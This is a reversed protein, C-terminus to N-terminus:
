DNDLIGVINQRILQKARRLRSKITEQNLGTIKQIEWIKLEEFYYLMIIVKYKEPLSLIQKLLINHEEKKILINEISGYSQSLEDKILNDIPIGISNKRIKLLDKCKNVAIKALWTKYSSDGRFDDMKKYCTIFVEQTVDESISWDKIFLYCLGKIDQSFENMLIELLEEKKKCGKLLVPNM